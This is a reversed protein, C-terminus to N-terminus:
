SGSSHAAVGVNAAVSQLASRLQSFSAYREEPSKSMAKLIVQEVQPMTILEPRREHPAVPMENIQKYMTALPGEGQAPQQGTITEYMLCGMSYIDSRVDLPQGLCQEPSMYNPTGFVDGTKTLNGATGELVKAIGFDVLKVSYKKYSVDEQLVMVNGPKLDRHLIKNAHAYAMADCVQDFILLCDRIPLTGPAQSVMNSLSIGPLYEMVLFLKHKDFIGTDLVAVINPHQLSSVARAEHVFRGAAQADSLYRTDLMKIAVLKRMLRHRAKYIVSMGGRALEEIFEYSTGFSASEDGPFNLATGDNPCVDMGPGVVLQCKSCRKDTPAGTHALQQLMMPLKRQARAEQASLLLLLSFVILLLFGGVIETEQLSQLAQAASNFHITSFRYNLAFIVQLATYGVLAMYIYRRRVPTLALVYQEYEGERFFFQVYSITAASYALVAAMMVLPAFPFALMVFAHGWYRSDLPFASDHMYKIYPRLILFCYVLTSITWALLDRGAAVWPITIVARRAAPLEGPSVTLEEDAYVLRHIRRYIYKQTKKAFIINLPCLVMGYALTIWIFHPIFDKGLFM